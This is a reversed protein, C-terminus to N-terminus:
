RGRRRIGLICAVALLVISLGWVLVIKLVEAAGSSIFFTNDVPAPRRVDLPLDEFSLWNFMGMLFEYNVPAVKLNYTAGIGGNSLFDSDGSVIIRQEKEGVSRQLALMVDYNDLREGVFPQYEPISDKFNFTKLENWTSDCSLMPIVDFGKDTVMDLAAVGEMAVYYMGSTGVLIHSLQCAEPTTKALMIHPAIETSLRALTGPVQRVGLLALIPEMVKERTPNTLLVLNGGRNIYQELVCMEKESFDERPEAIVLIDVKQLTISDLSTEIVDFGQNVLARRQDLRTTFLDYGRLGTGQINREGHGRVFGVLPSRRVLKKLAASIESEMPFRIMDSYIRLFATEGNERKFQRVFRGEEGSLDVQKRIEAPSLYDALNVGMADAFKSVREEFPEGPFIRVSPDVVSSDYYYVYEMKMEPKFRIYQRFRRKDTNLNTPQAIVFDETMLNTYTTLTLGDDIKELIEQSAPTLTNVKFRTADYFAMFQPRSTLYGLLFVICFLGGYNRLMSWASVKHRKRYLFLISLQLFFLTVLIFYLFDESCLLGVIMENARGTVSLWYTLDRVFAIDQWMGGVYHLFTLIALTGLAAIIQYSTLTSMYLGIAAYTCTVLYVGLLGVLVAPIDLREVVCACMLIYVVLVGMLIGVYLMMSLFKGLVIQRNSVPSSYLMKISGSAYERSMVNMTLLPIYLYLYKMAINYLGAYGSSFLQYTLNSGENFTEQSYVFDVFNSMFGMGVQFTYLLLIIWAIPSYFLVQLEAKAINYIVRM